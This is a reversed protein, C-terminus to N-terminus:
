EVMVVLVRTISWFAKPDNIVLGTIRKGEREISYSGQPHESIIKVGKADLDIRNLQRIDGVTFLAQDASSSVTKVRGIGLFGGQSDIIGKDKLNRRTDVIYYCKNLEAEKASITRQSEETIVQVKRTLQRITEDREEIAKTLEAITAEREEIQKKLSEVLKTLQSNQSKSASLQQNLRTIKAKSEEIISNLDQIDRIVADKMSVFRDGSASEAVRLRGEKERIVNLNEQIELMANTFSEITSDQERARQELEAKEAKLTEIEQKLESNCSALILATFFAFISKKM